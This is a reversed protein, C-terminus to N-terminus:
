PDSFLKYLFPKVDTLTEPGGLNFLIIGLKQM